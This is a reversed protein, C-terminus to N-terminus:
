IARAFFSCSFFLITFCHKPNTVLDVCWCHQLKGFKVAPNPAHAITERKNTFHCLVFVSGLIKNQRCLFVFLLFLSMRLSYTNEVKRLYIYGAM